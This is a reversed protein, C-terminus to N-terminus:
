AAHVAATLREFVRIRRRMRPPHCHRVTIAFAPTETGALLMSMHGGESAGLNTARASQASEMVAHVDDMRQELTPLEHLPVPRVQYAINLDGSRAYRTEPPM